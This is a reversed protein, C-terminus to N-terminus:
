VPGSHDHRDVVRRGALTAGTALDEVAVELNEDVRQPDGARLRDGDVSVPQGRQRRDPERPLGDGDVVAREGRGVDDRSDTVWIRQGCPQKLSSPPWVQIPRFALKPILNSVSVFSLSVTGASGCSWRSYARGALSGIIAAKPSM